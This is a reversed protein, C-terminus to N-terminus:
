RTARALVAVADARSRDVVSRALLAFTRNAGPSAPRLRTLRVRLDVFRGPALSATRMTGGLVRSTVDTTGLFYRVRFRANGPTGLATFSDARNGDNQIRVVVERVARDRPFSQTIRQQAYAGYVNNGVWSGGSPRIMGDARSFPPTPVSYHRTVTTTNGAGDTGTVAFTHAGPTSTDLPQRPPTCSRLSSGGKDTCSFVPTVSQGRVYSAGEAPVDVLVRPKIADPVVARVVRYALYGDDNKLEWLLNGASDVESATARREAAWGVLTNGNTLRRASGAFYTYRGPVTYDWVLTATGAGPDVAYETVRSQQRAITPGTPNDPDVCHAPDDGLVGSGNDYILIHGSALETATHQACPGSPYPDDAFTFDGHRGGLSWVIDGRSFGDHARWAIKLVASLHRFSALIDGDAMVHISNIHAYDEHGPTTTTETAPDLHEASNWTYVVQGQANVEQIVSDTLGTQSNPEYATLIRSGDARLLSDHGDTHALGQTEYRRVEEFQADLEVLQSGLRGPTQTPSRAVTYRGAIGDPKFDLAGFGSPFAQVHRPVGHNDLVAEFNPTGDAAYRSLNLLVDGPATAPAAPIVETMRPFREPLYVLSHAAVGATDKIIVSIEDGASLGQITTTAATTPRGNISVTGAPDSTSAVVDVTGGTAATTTLGYREVDPAFAPYMAVGTGAASVSHVPVVAAVAPEITLVPLNLLLAVPLLGKLLQAAGARSM